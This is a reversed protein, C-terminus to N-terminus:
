KQRVQESTYNRSYIAAATCHHLRAPISPIRTSLARIPCASPNEASQDSMLVFIIARFLPSLNANLEIAYGNSPQPEVM